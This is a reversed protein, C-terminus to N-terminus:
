FRCTNLYQPGNVDKWWRDLGTAKDVIWYVIGMVTKSIEAFFTFTEGVEESDDSENKLCIAFALVMSLWQLLRALVWDSEPVVPRMALMFWLLFICLAAVTGYFIQLRELEEQFPCSDQILFVTIPLCSPYSPPLVQLPSLGKLPM